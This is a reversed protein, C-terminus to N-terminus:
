SGALVGWADGIIVLPQQWSGPKEGKTSLTLEWFLLRSDFRDFLRWGYSWVELDSCDDWRRGKRKLAL